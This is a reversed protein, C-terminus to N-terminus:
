PGYLVLSFTKTLFVAMQARTNPDAPCYLLPSTSCGATIGRNYLDEIWAAFLSDQPVDGFLGVAPPPVYGAGNLEKLLFASMQQRTVAGTPCYDGGGCGGTIGLAALEEIWAAFPADAPVDNFVTGTAPPPVHDAGFKSKLLFVAM